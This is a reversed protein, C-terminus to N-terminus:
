EYQATLEVITSRIESSPSTVPVELESDALDNDFYLGGGAPFEIDPLLTEVDVIQRRIKVQAKADL